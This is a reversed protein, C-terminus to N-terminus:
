ARLDPRPAPTRPRLEGFHHALWRMGIGVAILPALTLVLSGLAAVVLAGVVLLLLLVVVAAGAEQAAWELMGAGLAALILMSLAGAIAALRRRPVRRKPNAAPALAPLDRHVAALEGLTRAGLVTDLRESLEEPTLRGATCHRTLEDAARERDADGARIHADSSWLRLSPVRM